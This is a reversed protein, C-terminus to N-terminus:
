GGSVPPIIAVDAAAAVPEHDGAYRDGLAVASRELLPGAAPCAARVARRLDAVTGGTWPLELSSRGAVEAMGAFLVVRLSRSAEIM